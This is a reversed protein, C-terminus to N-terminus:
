QLGVAPPQASDILIYTMYNPKLRLKRWSGEYWAQAEALWGGRDRRGMPVTQSCCRYLAEYAQQGAVTSERATDFLPRLPPDPSGIPWQEILLYEVPRRCVVNSDQVRLLQKVNDSEGKRVCSWLMADRLLMQSQLTEDSKNETKRSTLEQVVAVRENASLAEFLDGAALMAPWDGLKPDPNDDNVALAATAREQAQQLIAAVDVSGQDKSQCATLQTLSISWLIACCTSYCFSHM